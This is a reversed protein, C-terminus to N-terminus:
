SEGQNPDLGSEAAERGADTVLSAFDSVDINARIGEQLIRRTNTATEQIFIQNPDLPQARATPQRLERRRQEEATIDAQSVGLTSSALAREFDTFNLPRLETGPTGMAAIDEEFLASAAPDGERFTVGLGQDQLTAFQQELGESNQALARGSEFLSKAFEQLRENTGAGARIDTGVREFLAIAATREELTTARGATIDAVIDDFAARLADADEGLRVGVRAFFEPAQAQLASLAGGLGRVTEERLMAPEAKFINEIREAAAAFAASIDDAADAMARATEDGEDGFLGSVDGEDRPLFELGISLFALGTGIPGLVKAVRGLVKTLGGL